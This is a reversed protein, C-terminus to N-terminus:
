HPKIEDILEKSMLHQQCQRGGSGTEYRWVYVVGWKIVVNLEAALDVLDGEM